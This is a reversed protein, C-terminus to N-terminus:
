FAKHHSTPHHKTWYDALNQAGPRWYFQYQDQAKRCHLWHFRMNMAKLVKPLIKNTLLAHATLNDTQIPTRMQPHGMEKLTRQMSVVTKANIFLTGLQAEAASLMVARIIQLINLVAGNNIPIDKIGTMFMHGGARSRTKSESLYSTNSHIVLTM